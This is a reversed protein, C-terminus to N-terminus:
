STSTIPRRAAAPFHRTNWTVIAAAGARVAAALVHRDGPACRMVPVLDEYGEVLAEPFHTLLLAVTRDIRTPDLDPRRAKLSRAMEDLIQRSWLPQYLDHEAALLLTDRVAASWLANADLLAPSLM